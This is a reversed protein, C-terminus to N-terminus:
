CAIAWLVRVPSGPIQIASAPPLCAQPGLAFGAGASKLRYISDQTLRPIIHESTNYICM